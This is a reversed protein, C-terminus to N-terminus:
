AAIPQALEDGIAVDAGLSRLIVAADAPVLALPWAAPVSLWAVVRDFTDVRMGPREFLKSNDVSRVGLTKLSVDPQTRVHASVWLDAVQRLRKMTKM